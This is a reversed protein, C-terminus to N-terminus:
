EWYDTEDSEEVDSINNEACVERFSTILDRVAEFSEYLFETSIEESSVDHVIHTRVENLKILTTKTREKIKAGSVEAIRNLVKSLEGKTIRAAAKQPLESLMVNKSEGLIKELEMRGDQLEDSLVYKAMKEPKGIFVNISFDKIIKELYTKLLVVIQRRFIRAGDALIKEPTIWGDGFALKKGSYHISKAEEDNLFEDIGDFLVELELIELERSFTEFRASNQEM